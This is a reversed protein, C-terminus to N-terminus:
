KTAPAEPMETDAPLLGADVCDQMTIDDISKGTQDSAMGDSTAAELDSDIAMATPDAMQDCRAQVTPLDIDTVTVGGVLTAAAAAGSLGLTIAIVAASTITTFRM